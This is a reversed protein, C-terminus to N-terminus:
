ARNWSREPDSDWYCFDLFSDFSDGYELFRRYRQASRSPKKPKAPPDGVIAIGIFCGAGNWETCQWGCACKDKDNGNGGRNCECCATWRRGKEDTFSHM